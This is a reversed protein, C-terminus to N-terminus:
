TSFLDYHPCCRDAMGSPRFYAVLMDQERTEGPAHSRLVESVLAKSIVLQRFVLLNPSLALHDQWSGASVAIPM